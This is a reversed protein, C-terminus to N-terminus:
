WGYDSDYVGYDSGYGFAEYDLGYDYDYDGDDDDDHFDEIEDWDLKKVADRLAAAQEHGFSMADKVEVLELKYGLPRRKLASAIDGTMDSAASASVHIDEFDVEHFHLSRLGPFRPVASVLANTPTSTGAQNSKGRNRQKRARGRGKGKPKVASLAPDGLLSEVFTSMGANFPMWWRIATLSQLGAFTNNWTRLPVGFYSEHFTLYRLTSLGLHKDIVTIHEDFQLEEGVTFVLDPTERHTIPKSMAPSNDGFWFQFEPYRMLNETSTYRIERLSTRSACRGELFIWNTTLAALFQSTSEPTPPLGDVRINLSATGPIRTGLLFECIEAVAARLELRRIAPLSVPSGTSAFPGRPLMGSLRLDQLRPMGQLSQLFHAQSPRHPSLNDLHLRTLTPITPIRDWHINFHAAEFDTLLPPVGIKDLFDNPLHDSAAPVGRISTERGRLRLTQLTDSNSFDSLVNGIETQSFLGVGGHNSIDVLRLRNPRSLVKRMIEFHGIKYSAFKLSLPVQKARVLMLNTFEPHVALSINSWLEPCNLAVDRWLRCVHSVKIWSSPHSCAACELFVKSLIEAPLSSTTAGTNRCSKLFRIEAELERIRTDVKARLTVADIRGADKWIRQSPKSFQHLPYNPEVLVSSCGPHGSSM